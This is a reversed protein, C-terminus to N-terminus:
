TNSVSRVKYISLLLLSTFLWLSGGVGLSVNVLAFDPGLIAQSSIFFSFAFIVGCLCSILCTTRGKGLYLLFFSLFFLPNALWPLALSLFFLGESFEGNFLAYFGDSLTFLTQIWGLLLVEFGLPGDGKDVQVTGVTVLSVLYVLLTGILMARVLRQNAQPTM